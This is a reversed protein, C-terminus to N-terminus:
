DQGVQVAEEAVLQHPVELVVQARTLHEQVAVVAVLM